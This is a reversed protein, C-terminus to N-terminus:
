RQNLKKSSFIKVVCVVPKIVIKRVLKCLVESAEIFEAIPPSVMYYLAILSRGAKSRLLVVDRYNRLLIVDPHNETGYAASAIFCRKKSSEEQTDTQLNQNVISLFEKVRRNSPDLLLAKELLPKAKEDNGVYQLLWGSCFLAQINSPAIEIIKHAINEVADDSEDDDSLCVIKALAFLPQLKDPNRRHSNALVKWAETFKNAELLKVGTQYDHDDFDEDYPPLASDVNKKKNDQVFDM